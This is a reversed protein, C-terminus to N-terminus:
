LSQDFLTYDRNKYEYVLAKFGDMVSIRIEIVSKM